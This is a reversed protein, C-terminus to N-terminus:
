LKKGEIEELDANVDNLNGLKSFVLNELIVPSVLNEQFDQKLSEPDGYLSTSPYGFVGSVKSGAFLLLTLTLLLNLNMPQSKAQQM